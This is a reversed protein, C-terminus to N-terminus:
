SPVRIVMKIPNDIHTMQINRKVNIYRALGIILILSGMSAFVGV